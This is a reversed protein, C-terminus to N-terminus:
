RRHPGPRGGGACALFEYRLDRARAQVSGRRMPATRRETVVKVGLRDCLDVVHEAVLASGDRLGHDFHAAAIDYGLEHLAILLATSDPGGSVAVLVHDERRILGSRLIGQALSEMSRRALM